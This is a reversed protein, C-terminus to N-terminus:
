KIYIYIKKMFFLKFVEISMSLSILKDSILYQYDKEYNRLDLYFYILGENYSEFWM